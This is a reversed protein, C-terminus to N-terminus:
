ILCTGTGNGATPACGSRAVALAGPRRQRGPEGRRAGAPADRPSRRSRRSRSSSACRSNPCTERASSRGPDRRSRADRAPERPHLLHQALRGEATADAPLTGTLSGEDFPVRAIIAVTSSAHPFLEDEPGPRLHQLHGARLGGARDSRRLVNAPEWRNVSIGFGPDDERAEPRGDRTALRRRPGRTAGSTSSCCTSRRSGLNELSKEAYERIHDPPFVDGLREAQRALRQEEAPGQDRRLPAARTRRVGASCGSATGTATPGPRTSSTAGSSSAVDLARAVGRRRLGDLRGDGM